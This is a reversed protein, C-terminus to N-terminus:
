PPQAELGPPPRVVIRGQELDVERVVERVAPLWLVRGRPARLSVVWIDHARSRRIERVRGLLRGEEDFVPLGVIQFLYYHGEPLPRVSDEPIEVLAGRLSEARTRDEIGRLKLLLSKGPGRRAGEAWVPQVRGDAWRLRCAGLEALREPYDTLPEVRLEGRVGHPALVRAVAVFRGAQAQPEM